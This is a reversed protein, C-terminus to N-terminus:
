LRPNEKLGFRTRQGGRDWPADTESSSRSGGRGHLHLCRDTIGPTSISPSQKYLTDRVAGLRGTRENGLLGLWDIYGLPERERFGRASSANVRKAREWLKKLSQLGRGLGRDLCDLLGLLESTLREDRPHHRSSRRAQISRGGLSWDRGLTAEVTRSCRGGRATQSGTGDRRWGGAAEMFLSSTRFTRDRAPSSSAALM